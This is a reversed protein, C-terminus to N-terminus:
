DCCDWCKWTSTGNLVSFSNFSYGAPHYGAKIQLEIAEEESVERPVSFLINKEGRHHRVITLDDM